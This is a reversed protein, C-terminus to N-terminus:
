KHEIISQVQIFVFVIVLWIHQIFLKGLLFYTLQWRQEVMSQMKFRNSVSYMMELSYFVRWRRVKSKCSSEFKQRVNWEGHRQSCGFIPRCANEPGICLPYNIRNSTPISKEKRGFNLLGGFWPADANGPGLEVFEIWWVWVYVHWLECAYTEMRFRAYSIASDVCARVCKNIRFFHTCAGCILCM